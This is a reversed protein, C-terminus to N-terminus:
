FGGNWTNARVLKSQKPLPPQPLGRIKQAQELEFKAKMVKSREEMLQKQEKSLLQRRKLLDSASPRSAPDANMMQEIITKMEFPTDKLPDFVGSRINQWEQGDGPLPRGLCIEYMTAGLSFIDSKTLDDHDGSLLEKSMYRSDGEEVDHNSIKSVLGFDGLKFQDNKIFINEPKIDLHVMGHRHLFELALLMERLLKYRREVSFMGRSTEELLTSGCLETQIYLRDDEMWAQHYRVIHFAATDAQDSLAALAYVEKLMRDRAAAGKAKRKAAKIAYMCGDLRSLCKYVTGFSGDGLESLLDFDGNFRSKISARRRAISHDDDDESDYRRSAAKREVMPTEIARSIPTYHNRPPKSPTEVPPFSMVDTPSIEEQIANKIKSNQRHDNNAQETDVFLPGHHSTSSADENLYMRRVKSSIDRTTNEIIDIEEIPSGTFSYQGHRDPYGHGGARSNTSPPHAPTSASTQWHQRVQSNDRRQLNIKSVRSPTNKTNSSLPINSVAPNRLKGATGDTTGLSSGATNKTDQSDFSMGSELAMPFTPATRMPQATTNNAAASGQASTDSMMNPTYPSFPNKSTVTRGDITKYSPSAEDEEGQPPSLRPSLFVDDDSEEFLNASPMSAATATFRKRKQHSCPSGVSMNMDVPRLVNSTVTDNDDVSLDSVFSDDVGSAANSAAATATQFLRYRPAASLNRKPTKGHTRELTNSTCLGGNINDEFVVSNNNENDDNNEDSDGGGFLRESPLHKRASRPPSEMSMDVSDSGDDFLRNRDPRTKRVPTLVM